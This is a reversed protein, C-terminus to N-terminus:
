RKKKHHTENREKEQLTIYKVGRRHSPRIEPNRQVMGNQLLLKEAPNLHHTVANGSSDVTSFCDRKTPSLSGCNENMAPAPMVAAMKQKSKKENKKLNDLSTKTHNERGDSRVQLVHSPLVQRINQFIHLLPM